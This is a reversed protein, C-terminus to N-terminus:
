STYSQDNCTQVDDAYDDCDFGDEASSMCYLLSTQKRHNCRTSFEVFRSGIRNVRLLTSSSNVTQAQLNPLFENFFKDETMEYDDLDVVCPILRADSQDVALM